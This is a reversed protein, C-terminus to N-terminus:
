GAGPRSQGTDMACGSGTFGAVPPLGLRNIAPMSGAPDGAARPRGPDLRSGSQYEVTGGDRFQETELM